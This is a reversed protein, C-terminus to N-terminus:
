SAADDAPLAKPNATQGFIWELYRESGGEVPLVLVAPTDYPHTRLTEAIVHDALAARTKIIM